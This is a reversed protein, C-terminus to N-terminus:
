PFKDPSDWPVHKDFKFYTDKATNSFNVNLAWFKRPNSSGPLTGKEFFKLPWTHVTGPFTGALNSTGLKLWKPIILV